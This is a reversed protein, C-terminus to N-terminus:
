LYRCQVDYITIFGVSYLDVVNELLQTHSRGLVPVIIFNDNELKNWLEIVGLKFKFKDNLSCQTVAVRVHNKLRPCTYQLGITLELEKISVVTVNAERLDAKAMEFREKQISTLKAM